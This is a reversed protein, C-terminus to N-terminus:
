KKTKELTEIRKLLNIYQTSDPVWRKLQNKLRKIRTPKSRPTM